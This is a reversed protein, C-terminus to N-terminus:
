EAAAMRRGALMTEFGEVPHRPVLRALCLSVFAMAAGLVFVAGPATLYLYGLAAPLFVAAVHNITFAVAATPAHDEPSAIKQFYTKLAFAISFFIHDALYLVAAWLPSADLWYIVAYGLFVAILGTYEVTLALREGFRAIMRGIFPAVLMTVFQNALLLAATEHLEYGFKEVLMFTAFVMFIQRRAGGMFVLAYYLWYRRKVVLERRQAHPAEFRPFALIAAIVLALSLGGAALYPWRYDLPVPIEAEGRAMFGWLILVGFVVFATGAAVARLNGIVQPAREKSLWQLQLSQNVTEFYHFGISSVMTTLALGWFTPLFGTAAAGIALLLLSVYALTQERMVLLVYVAGFALFGPIERITQLWGIDAGDFRAAEVAFNNLLAMWVDFALAMAVTMAILLAEPRQWRPLRHSDAIRIMPGDRLCRERVSWGCIAM